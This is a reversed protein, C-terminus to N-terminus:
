IDANIGNDLVLAINQIKEYILKILSIDNISPYTKTIDSNSVSYIINNKNSVHRIDGGFSVGYYTNPDTNLNIVIDSIDYKTYMSHIQYNLDQINTM